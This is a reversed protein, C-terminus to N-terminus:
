DARDHVFRAIMTEGNRVIYMRFPTPVHGEVIQKRVFDVNESSLIEWNHMGVLIDGKQVHAASFPSDKKVDAVTLGGRYKRTPKGHVDVLAPGPKLGLQVWIAALDVPVDDAPGTWALGNDASGDISAQGDNLPKGSQEVKAETEMRALLRRIRDHTGPMHRIVLRVTGGVFVEIQADETNWPGPKVAQQIHEVLNKAATSDSQGEKRFTTLLTRSPTYERTISEITLRSQNVYIGRNITVRPLGSETARQEKGSGVETPPGIRGRLTLGSQQGPHYLELPPADVVVMPRKLGNPQRVTELRDVWEISRRTNRSFGPTNRHNEDPQNQATLLRSLSQLLTQIQVHVDETQRVVLSSGGPFSQITGRGGVQQWTDPAVTETILEILRELRQERGDESGALKTVQYAQAVLKGKLRTKSTIKLAENEIVWGLDLDNLLISLASRLTINSVHLTSETQTTFGEEELAIGDVVM